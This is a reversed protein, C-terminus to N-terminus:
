RCALAKEIDDADVLGPCAYVNTKPETIVRTGNLPAQWMRGSITKGRQFPYMLGIVARAQAIEKNADWYSLFKTRIGVKQWGNGYVDVKGARILVIIQAQYADGAM